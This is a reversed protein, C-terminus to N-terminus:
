DTDSGALIAISARDPRLAALGFDTIVNYFWPTDADFWAFRSEM